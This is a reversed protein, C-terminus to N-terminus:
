YGDYERTGFSDSCILRTTYGKDTRIIIRRCHSPKDMDVLDELESLTPVPDM